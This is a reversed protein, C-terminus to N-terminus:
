KIKKSPKVWLFTHLGSAPEMCDQTSPINEKLNGKAGRYKNVFSSEAQLGQKNMCESYIAVWRLYMIRPPYCHKFILNM